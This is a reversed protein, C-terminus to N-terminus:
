TASAIMARTLRRRVQGVIRGLTGNVNPIATTPDATNNQPAGLAGIERCLLDDKLPAAHDERKRSTRRQRRTVDRRRGMSAINSPKVWHRAHCPCSEADIAGNEWMAISGAHCNETGQCDHSAKPNMPGKHNRLWQILIGFSFARVTGAVM